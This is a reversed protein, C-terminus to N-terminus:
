TVKVQRLTELVAKMAEIEREAADLKMKGNAVWRPYVQERMRIERQVCLIQVDISVQPPVDDFLGAAAPM